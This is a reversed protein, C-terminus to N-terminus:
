KDAKELKTLVDKTVAIASKRLDTATKEVYPQSTKIALQVLEDAKEKIQEAKEEAIKLVKEKDLSAMELKLEEVKVEFSEKVEEIDIEKIKEVLEDFKDKLEKRTEKGSKPAFLVGLGAGILTGLAFKSLGSSRKKSM